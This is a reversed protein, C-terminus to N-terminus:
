GEQRYKYEKMCVIRTRHSNLTKSLIVAGRYVREPREVSFFMIGGKEQLTAVQSNEPYLNM